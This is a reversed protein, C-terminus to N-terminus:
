DLICYWLCTDCFSRPLLARVMKFLLGTSSSNDSTESATPSVKPMLFFYSRRREIFEIDICYM